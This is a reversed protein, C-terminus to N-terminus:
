LDHYLSSRKLFEILRMSNAQSPRFIAKLDNGLGLDRQIVAFRTCHLLIHDVTLPEQCHDCVPPVHPTEFLFSHTHRTHGIRLRTLRYNLGRDQLLYPERSDFYDVHCKLKNDDPLESWERRRDARIIKKVMRKADIHTVALDSPETQSLASGAELDAEENGVVGVHSHVFLFKVKDSNEAVISQIYNVLPNKNGYNCISTLSGLSDTVILTVQDSEIAMEVSRRIATLEATYISTCPQMKEKIRMSEGIIAYSTGAQSRAGDTYLVKDYRAARLKANALRKLVCPMVSDKKVKSMSTDVMLCGFKWPPPGLM